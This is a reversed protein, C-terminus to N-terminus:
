IASESLSSMLDYVIPVVGWLVFAPLLCSTLPLVVLVAARRARAVTRAHESDRLQNAMRECATSLAAGSEASRVMMTIVLEADPTSCPPLSWAEGPPAGLQLQVSTMRWWDGVPCGVASGVLAIGASVPSGARLTAALLELAFPLQRTLANQATRDPRARLTRVARDGLSVAIAACGIGWWGGIIVLSAVAALALAGYRLVAEPIRRGLSAVPAADDIMPSLRRLARARSVPPLRQLACMWDGPQAVPLRHTPLPPLARDSPQVEGLSALHDAARAVPARRRPQPAILPHNM